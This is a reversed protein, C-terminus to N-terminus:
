SLEILRALFQGQLDQALLAAFDAHHGSAATNAFPLVHAPRPPPRGVHAVLRGFHCQWEVIQVGKALRAM